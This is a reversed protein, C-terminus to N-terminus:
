FPGGPGVLKRGHALFSAMEAPDVSIRSLSEPTTQAHAM